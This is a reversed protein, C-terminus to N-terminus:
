LEARFKTRDRLCQGDGPDIRGADNGPSDEQQNDSGERQHHCTTERNMASLLRNAAIMRPLFCPPYALTIRTTPAVM